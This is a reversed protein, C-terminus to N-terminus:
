TRRLPNNSGFFVELLQGIESEPDWVTGTLPRGDKLRKYEKKLREIEQQKQLDAVKKRWFELEEDVVYTM